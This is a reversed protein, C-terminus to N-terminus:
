KNEDSFPAYSGELGHEEKLLQALTQLSSLVTEKLKDNSEVQKRFEAIQSDNALGMSREVSDLRTNMQSMIGITNTLKSLLRGNDVFMGSALGAQLTAIQLRPYIRIGPVIEPNQGGDMIYKATEDLRLLEAGMAKVMNRRQEALTLENWCWTSILTGFGVLVLGLIAIIGHPLQSCCGWSHWHDTTLFGGFVILATWFLLWGWLCGDIM